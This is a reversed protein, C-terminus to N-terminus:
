DRATGGHAKEQERNTACENSGFVKEKADLILSGESAPGEDLGM